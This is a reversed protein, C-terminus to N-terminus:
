KIYNKLNLLLNEKIIKHLHSNNMIEKKLQKPDEGSEKINRIRKGFESDIIQIGYPTHFSSICRDGIIVRRAAQDVYIIDMMDKKHFTKIYWRSNKIKNILNYRKM